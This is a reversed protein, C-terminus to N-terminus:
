AKPGSRRLRREREDTAGYGVTSAFRALIDRSDATRLFQLAIFLSVLARNQDPIPIQMGLHGARIWEIWQDTICAVEHELSAFQREMTLPDHGEDALFDLYYFSREAAVSRPNTTFVRDRDRDWIWLRNSADCFRRLYFQPVHHHLKPDSM